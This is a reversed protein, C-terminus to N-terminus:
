MGGSFLGCAVVFVSSELVLAWDFSYIFVLFFFFFSLWIM